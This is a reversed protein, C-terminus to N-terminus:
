DGHKDSDQISGNIGAAIRQQYEKDRLVVAGVQALPLLVGGARGDLGVLVVALYCM